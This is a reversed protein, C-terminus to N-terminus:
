ERGKSKIRPYGRDKEPMLQLVERNMCDQIYTDGKFGQVKSGGGYFVIPVTYGFLIAV